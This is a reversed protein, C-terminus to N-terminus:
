SPPAPPINEAWSHASTYNPFTPCDLGGVTLSLICTPVKFVQAPQSVTPEWLEAGARKLLYHARAAKILHIPLSFISTYYFLLQM